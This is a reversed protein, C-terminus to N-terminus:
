DLNTVIFWWNSPCHKYIQCKKPAVAFHDFIGYLIIVCSHRRIVIQHRHQYWCHLLLTLLGELLCCESWQVAGAPATRPLARPCSCNPWLWKYYHATDSFSALAGEDMQADSSMEWIGMIILCVEDTLVASVSDWWRRVYLAKILTYITQTARIGLCSAIHNKTFDKLNQNVEREDNM